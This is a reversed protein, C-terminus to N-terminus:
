HKLRTPLTEFLCASTWGRHHSGLPATCHNLISGSSTLNSAYRQPPERSEPITGSFRDRCLAATDERRYKKDLNYPIFYHDCKCRRWHERRGTVLPGVQHFVLKATLVYILGKGTTKCESVQARGYKRERQHDYSPRTGSHRWHRSQGSLGFENFKRHQEPSVGTVTANGCIRFDTSGHTQHREVGCKAEELIRMANDYAPGGRSACTDTSKKM